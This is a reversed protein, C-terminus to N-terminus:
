AAESGARARDAALQALKPLDDRDILSLGAPNNPNGLLLLPGQPALRAHHIACVTALNWIEDGGGWSSPWCHHVQLGIRRDCGPWRCTGDRQRVVRKTKESLAPETRGVVIPQGDDGVLVPEIKAQGRLRQVMADPLPIGAVTAPGHLPVQVILHPAPTSTTEDGRRAAYFRCLEVLADAGRHERTDWPQGKAPRMEDIMENFVSEVLAGDIDPLSFRGDLMGQDRRPWFRLERAARRAAADEVTPKHQERVKGALDQPSWGPAERAWREDAGPDDGALRSAHDLQEDSLRGKAAANALSPQQELKRATERKRRVDRTSVGDTAALSDDVRGREDLVRTIALERLHWWRQEAVSELRVAELWETTHCRMEDLMEGYDYCRGDALVGESKAGFM